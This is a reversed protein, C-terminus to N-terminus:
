TKYALTFNNLACGLEMVLDKIGPKYLRIRDKLIRYIKIRGICHEVLVRRAAKQKNQTKQEGTLEKTRPKKHPMEMNVGEAKLGKFGLDLHVTLGQPFQGGEEQVITKDHVSGAYTKSLFLVQGKGTSLM